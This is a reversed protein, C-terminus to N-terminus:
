FRSCAQIKSLPFKDHMITKLLQELLREFSCDVPETVVTSELINTFVKLKALMVEDKDKDGRNTPYVVLFNRSPNGVAEIEYAKSNSFFILIFTSTTPARSLVSSAMNPANVM